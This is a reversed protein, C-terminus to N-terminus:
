VRKVYDILERHAQTVTGLNPSLLSLKTIIGAEILGDIDAEIVLPIQSDYDKVTAIMKGIENSYKPNTGTMDKLWRLSPIEPDSDTTRGIQVHMEKIIGAELMKGLPERWGSIGGFPYNGAKTSELAHYTDWVVGDLSGSKVHRILDNVTLESNFVSPHTQVYAPFYGHDSIRKESDPYVVVPFRSNEKQLIHLAQNAKKPEAFALNYLAYKEGPRLKDEHRVVVEWTTAYPNFRMHGSRVEMVDTFIRIPTKIDTIEYSAFRLPHFEASTYGAINAWALIKENTWYLPVDPRYKTGLSTYAFRVDIEPSM